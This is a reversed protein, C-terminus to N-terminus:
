GNERAESSALQLLERSLGAATILRQLRKQDRFGSASSRNGTFSPMLARQSSGAGAGNSRGPARGPAPDALAGQSLALAGGATFGGGVGGSVDGDDGEGSEDDDDLDGDEDDPFFPLTSRVARAEIVEAYAAPLLHQALLGLGEQLTLPRWPSATTGAGGMYEVLNRGELVWVRMSTACDTAIVPLRRQTVSHVALSELSLQASVAAAREDMATTTKWDIVACAWKVSDSDDAFLPTVAADPHGVITTVVPGEDPTPRMKVRLALPSKRADVIKCYAALGDSLHENVGPGIASELQRMFHAQLDPTAEEEDRRGWTFVEFPACAGLPIERYLLAIDKCTTVQKMFTEGAASMHQTKFKKKTAVSIKIENIGRIVDDISTTPVAAPPRHTHQYPPLLPFLFNLAYGVPSTRLAGRPASRQSEGSTEPAEAELLIVNAVDTFPAPDFPILVHLETAAPKYTRDVRMREADESSIRLVKTSPLIKVGVSAFATIAQFVFPALVSADTSVPIAPAGVAVFYIVVM